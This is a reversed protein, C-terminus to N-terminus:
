QVTIRRPQSQLAKPVVISLIGNKLSATVADQNVQGPFSFTRQFEGVSRESIWYKPESKQVEVQASNNSSNESTSAQKDSEAGVDVYEDEVTPKQYSSSDNGNEIQKSSSGAEIAEPKSGSSSERVTRGRIVLTNQDVFEIQVDKQDIGPLEGQLQYSDKEERVDFRPQFSRIPRSLQNFEEDFLRFLPGFESFPSRPFLTGM